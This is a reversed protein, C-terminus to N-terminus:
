LAECQVARHGPRHCSRLFGAAQRDAKHRGKQPLSCKQGSGNKDGSDSKDGSRSKKGAFTVAAALLALFLVILLATGLPTPLYSVNEGDTIVNYLM